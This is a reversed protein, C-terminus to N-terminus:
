QVSEAQINEFREQLDTTRAQQSIFAILLQHWQFVGTWSLQNQCGSFFIHGICFSKELNCAKERSISLM